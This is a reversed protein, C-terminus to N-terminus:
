IGWAEIVIQKPDYRPVKQVTVTGVALFQQRVLPRLDNFHKKTQRINDYAWDEGSGVEFRLAGVLQHYFSTGLRLAPDTVGNKFEEFAKEGDSGAFGFTKCLDISGKMTADVLAVAKTGSEEFAITVRADVFIVGDNRVFVWDGGSKIAGSAGYTSNALVVSSASSEYKVKLRMGEQGNIVAGREATLDCTLTVYKKLAFNVGNSTTVQPSIPAVAATVSAAVSSM